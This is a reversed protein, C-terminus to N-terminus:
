YQVNHSAESGATVVDDDMSFEDPSDDAVEVNAAVEPMFDIDMEHGDTEFNFFEFVDTSPTVSLPVIVDNVVVSPPEIVDNMTVSPEEFIDLPVVSSEDVVSVEIYDITENVEFFTVPASTYQHQNSM